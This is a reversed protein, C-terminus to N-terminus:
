DSKPTHHPMCFEDYEAIVIDAPDISCAPCNPDRCSRTPASRSRSPTTPWCGARCRLRGPRPDAQHGGHGPDLRHHRAARRARRGRRVVAGARRPAARPHLLPLVPRRPAQVRHGPGRLPLDLRARGAHGDEALRREAPLPEPLQRRRRGRPRVRSLLECSTAPTSASTTPSSTSTPTSRPDADEQGLRGQPRRDPGHQPPDPAPPEVRRRRGHRHHRHHRRRRRRPVARRALRPRRRRPAPGQRRAAQAPGGRGGRAPAPPAPLPQAARRHPDPAGGVRPGRGEVPQLRRRGLRRRHLGARDLTKAAFASRVGSACHVIVPVDHDPHPGRHQDRAPGPPHAACRPHRGARVRRARPRRARRRGPQQRLEDATATDVERIEAKTQALLDRFTAM